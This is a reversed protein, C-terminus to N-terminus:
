NTGSAVGRWTDLKEAHVASDRTLKLPLHTCWSLLIGESTNTSGAAKSDAQRLTEVFARDGKSAIHLCTQVDTDIAKCGIRGRLINVNDLSPKGTEGNWFDHGDAWRQADVKVRVQLEVRNSLNQNSSSITPRGDISNQVHDVAALRCLRSECGSQGLCELRVSVDQTHERM